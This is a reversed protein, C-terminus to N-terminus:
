DDIDENKLFAEAQHFLDEVHALDGLHGYHPTEGELHNKLLENINKMRQHILQLKAEYTQKAKPNSM